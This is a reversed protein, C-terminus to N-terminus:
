IELTSIERRATTANKRDAQISVLVLKAVASM